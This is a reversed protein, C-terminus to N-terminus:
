MNRGQTNAMTLNDKSKDLMRPIRSPLPVLDPSKPHHSSIEDWWGWVGLDGGVVRMGGSRTGGGEVGGSITVVGGCGWDLGVVRWFVGSITYTSSLDVSLRIIALVCLRFM